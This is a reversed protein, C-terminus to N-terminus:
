KALVMKSFESYNIMGDGDDDVVQIMKHVQDDTVREGVNSMVLSLEEATIQGNGDKDFVKFAAKIQEESNNDHVFKRATLTLLQLSDIPRVNTTDAETSPVTGRDRGSILGDTLYDAM